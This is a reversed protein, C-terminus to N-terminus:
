SARALRARMTAYNLGYGALIEGPIGPRVALALLVHEAGVELSGRREAHRM